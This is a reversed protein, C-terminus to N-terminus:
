AWGTYAAWGGGIVLPANGQDINFFYSYIAGRTSRQVYVNQPVPDHAGDIFQSYNITTTFPTGGCLLQSALPTLTTTVTTSPVVPGGTPAGGAPDWFDQWTSIIEYPPGTDGGLGLWKEWGIGTVPTTNRIDTDVREQRGWIHMAEADGFIPFWVIYGDRVTGITGSFQGWYANSPLIATYVSSAEEAPSGTFPTTGYTSSGVILPITGIPQWYWGRTGGSIPIEAGSQLMHPTPGLASLPVGGTGTSSAFRDPPDCTASGAGTINSTYNSIGIEVVIGGADISVRASSHEVTTLVSYGSGGPVSIADPNLGVPSLSGSRPTTEGYNATWTSVKLTSSGPYEGETHVYYAYLPGSGFENFYLFGLKSLAMGNWDLACIVRLNRKNRWLGESVVSLSGTIYGDVFSFTIRWHTSKYCSQGDGPNVSTEIGVCDAATGNWNFHWGYALGSAIRPPLDMGQPPSPYSQALLYAEIKAKESSPIAPDILKKELWRVGPARILEHADGSTVSILYHKGTLENLYIGCSTDLPVGGYILSPITSGSDVLTLEVPLEDLSGYLCQVYLRMKGTFLSSPCRILMAQAHTIHATTASKDAPQKGILTKDIRDVLKIEAGPIAYAAVGSTRTYYTEGSPKLFVAGSALGAKNKSEDSGGAVLTQFQPQGNKTTLMTTTGDPEVRFNKRYGAAGSVQDLMQRENAGGIATGQRTPFLNGFKKDNYSM